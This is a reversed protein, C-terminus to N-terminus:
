HTADSPPQPPLEPLAHASFWGAKLQLRYVPRWRDYSAKMDPHEDVRHALGTELYGQAEVGAKWAELWRQNGLLARIRIIRTNMANGQFWTTGATEIAAAQEALALAAPFRGTEVYVHALNTRAVAMDLADAPFVTEAMRLTQEFLTVAEGTRKTRWLMDARDVAVSLRTVPDIGPLGKVIDMAQGTLILGRQLQGMEALCTARLALHLAVVRLDGLQRAVGEAERLVAEAEAFRRLRVLSKAMGALANHLEGIQVPQENRRQSVLMRQFSLAALPQDARYLLLGAEQLAQRRAEARGTTLAETMVLARHANVMADKGQGMEIQAKALRMLYRALEASGKPWREQALRVAERAHDRADGYRGEAYALEGRRYAAAAQEAVRAWRSSQGSAQGSASFPLLAMALAGAAGWAM